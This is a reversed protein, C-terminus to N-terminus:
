LGATSTLGVTERLLALRYAPALGDLALQNDLEVADLNDFAAAVDLSILSLPLHWEAARRFLTAVM